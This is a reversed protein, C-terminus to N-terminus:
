NGASALPQGADDVFEVRSFNAPVELAVFPSTLSQTNFSGQAPMALRVRVTLTQGSLSSSVYQVSYGGSSKQGWFFAVVRSQPFNVAPAAPAPLQNGGVRQWLSALSAPDTALYAAPAQNTYAANAGQALVRANVSANVAAESGLGYQVTLATLNYRSPAPDLALPQLPPNIEYLVAPRGAARVLIERLVLDTESASLAELRPTGPTPTLTQANTAGGAGGLVSWGGDYLWAAKVRAGSSVVAQLGTFNRTTQVPAPVAASVARRWPQGDALLNQGTGQALSLSGGGLKVTQPAGYFYSWRETADPFLLQVEDVQFPQQGTQTPVCAGLGLILLGLARKMGEDYLSKRSTTIHTFCREFPSASASFRTLVPELIDHASSTALEM